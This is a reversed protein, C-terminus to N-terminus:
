TVLCEEMLEEMLQPWYLRSLQHKKLMTHPRGTAKWEQYLNLIFLKVKDLEEQQNYTILGAQFEDFLEEFEPDATGNIVSLIPHGAHLYEYLKGTLVGKLQLSSWSLLLNLHSRHQVELAKSRPLAGKDVLLQQLDYRALWEEWVERDRGALVIQVEEAKIKEGDILEKLARLLIDPDQLSPYVTGTYSITFKDYPSNLLTTSPDAEIGNNLCYTHDNYQRLYETYGRSVSTLLDAKKLIRRNCWHQFAPFLVNKRNPDVQVDRFDAIWYLDPFSRKLLYAIAHDSYPRFSSFLHTIGEKKITKRAKWYGALIYLLGGDGILLNFPFSDILKIIFQKIPHKKKRSSFYTVNKQVFSLIRRFDLTPIHNVSEYPPPEEDQQFIHQNSTTLVCVKRFYYRAHKFFNGIRVAGVAKVPPFYYSIMLLNPAYDTTKEHDPKQSHLKQVM